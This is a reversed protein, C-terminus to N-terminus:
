KLGTILNLLSYFGGAILMCVPITLVWARVITGVLGWKVASFGKTSGVGMILTSIAGPGVTLPFAMPYFIAMELNEPPATKDEPGSQKGLMSLGLHAIVFGGAMQTTSISVGMAKLVWSGLFVACFGIGFAAMSITFAYKKRETITCQSFFPNIILATGVPNVLPLLSSFGLAFLAILSTWEM